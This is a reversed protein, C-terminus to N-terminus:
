WRSTSESNVDVLVAMVNFGLIFKRVARRKTTEKADDCAKEVVDEKVRQSGDDGSGDHWVYLDVTTDM